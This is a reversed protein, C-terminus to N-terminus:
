SLKSKLQELRDITGIDSWQGQYHIAKAADIEIAQLLLPKLALRHPEYGNFLKPHYIGIGSYTYKIDDEARLNGTESIAFDGNPNHGPNTVM